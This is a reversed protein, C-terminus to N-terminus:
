RFKSKRLLNEYFEGIDFKVATPAARVRPQALRFQLTSKAVICRGKYCQCIM